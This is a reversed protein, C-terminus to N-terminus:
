AESGASSTPRSYPSGSRVLTDRTSDNAAHGNLLHEKGWYSHAGTPPLMGKEVVKIQIQNEEAVCAFRKVRIDTDDAESFYYIEEMEAWCEGEKRTKFPEQMPDTLKWWEQTTKDEGIKQTDEEYNQGTYEYYSFLIGDRLFISFNCINSDRIRKLVGPFTHKHLIIYREEFDPKLGIVSGLRRLRQM